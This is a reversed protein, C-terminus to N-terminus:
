EAHTQHHYSKESIMMMHAQTPTLFWYILNEYINANKQGLSTVPLTKSCQLFRQTGEFHIELRDVKSGKLLFFHNGLEDKKHPSIGQTKKLPNVFGKQQRDLRLPHFPTEPRSYCHYELLTFPM